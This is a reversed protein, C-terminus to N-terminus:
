MTNLLNQWSNHIVVGINIELIVNVFNMITEDFEPKPVRFYHGHNSCHYGAYYKGLRGRSSSGLLPNNCKPCMVFRKYPFEENKVGKVTGDDMVGILIKGGKNNAFAVMTKAIKHHFTITKKFDLDVGEGALILKKLNM